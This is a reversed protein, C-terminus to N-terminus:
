VERTDRWPPHSELPNGVEKLNPDALHSLCHRTTSPFRRGIGYVELSKPAFGCCGVDMEPSDPTARPKVLIGKTKSSLLWIILLWIVVMIVM